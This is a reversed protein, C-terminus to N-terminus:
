RRRLKKIARQYRIRNYQQLLTPYFNFLLNGILLIGATGYSHVLLAYVNTLLCFAFLVTHSKEVKYTEELKEQLVGIQLTVNRHVPFRKRIVRNIFDGNTSFKKFQKVGLSKYIDLDPSIQIKDYFGTPLRSLLYSVGLFILMWIWKGPGRVYFILSPALTTSCLGAILVLNLRYRLKELDGDTAM